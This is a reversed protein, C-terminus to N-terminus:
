DLRASRGTFPREDAKMEWLNRGAGAALRAPVDLLDDASVHREFLAIAEDRRGMAALARAALYDFRGDAYREASERKLGDLQELVETWKGARAAAALDRERAASADLTTGSALLLSLLALAASCRFARLRAAM